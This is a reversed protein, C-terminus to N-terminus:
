RLYVTKMRPDSDNRESILDAFIHVCVLVCSFLVCRIYAIVNVCLLSSVSLFPVNVM